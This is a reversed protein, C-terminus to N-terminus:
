IYVLLNQSCNNRLHIKITLTQKNGSDLHVIIKKNPPQKTQKNTKQRNSINFIFCLQVRQRKWEGQALDCSNDHGLIEFYLDVEITKVWLNEKFTVIYVGLKGM